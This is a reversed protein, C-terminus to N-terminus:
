EIMEWMSGARMCVSKEDVLGKQDPLGPVKIM